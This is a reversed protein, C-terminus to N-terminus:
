SIARRAETLAAILTDLQVADLYASAVDYKTSIWVEAETEGKQIKPIWVETKHKDTFYLIHQDEWWVHAM